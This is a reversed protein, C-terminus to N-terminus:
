ASSENEVIASENRAKRVPPNGDVGDIPDKPLPKNEIEHIHRLGEQRFYHGVLFAIVLIVVFVFYMPSTMFKWLASIEVGQGAGDFAGNLLFTMPTVTFLLM